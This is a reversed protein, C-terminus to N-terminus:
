HPHILDDWNKIKFRQIRIYGSDSVRLSRYTFGDKIADFWFPTKMRYLYRGSRDFVDFTSEYFRHVYINKHDDMILRVFYPKYKPLANFISRVEGRTLPPPWKIKKQRELIRNIREEKDAKTFPQPPDDKEICLVIEGLTNTLYLRYDASNGFVASGDSSVYLCLQPLDSEGFIYGKVQPLRYDPYVSLVRVIEGDPSSVAVRQTMKESYNGTMSGVLFDRNALIGFAKFIFHHPYSRVYRGNGDFEIITRPSGDYVFLHGEQDFYRYFSSQRFEGPGQGKRGFRLIFKRDAGFKKVCYDKRDLIYINGPRDEAVSVPQLFLLNSDKAELEGIKRVFSLSVAPKESASKINHVCRIGDRIEVSYTKEGRCSVSGLVLGVVAGGILFAAKARSLRRRLGSLVGLIPFSGAELNM